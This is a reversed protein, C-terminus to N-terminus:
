PEPVPSPETIPPATDSGRVGTHRTPEPLRRPPAGPEGPVAVTATVRVHAEGAAGALTVVGSVPGPERVSVRVELSPGDLEAQIEPTTTTVTSALVLPGGEVAATTTASTPGAPLEGLDITNPSIRPRLTQLTQSAASAVRRSDDDVLQSLVVIAGAALALNDRCALGALEDVAGLRVGAAHHEVLDLIERPLPAPIIRRRPNRAIVVDGQVGFDWRSPTQNPTRERVTDYVYDYLENLGVRGDHDRDAEGSRIGDTLAGTFLSPSTRGGTTLTTGELAYEMASSATIVVRGRGSDATESTFQEGVHADGDGRTVLGREFAGGYCCDLLLVVSQARSRGMLRNVLGADVATSALRDPLTNTAALFLEGSEDKIGHCSFHLLVVDSPHRGSFLGEVREAITYSPANRLVDVHFDGLREDGLVEALADADATPAALGHLTPDAYRDTAVVLAVRTGTM